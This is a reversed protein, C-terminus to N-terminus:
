DAIPCTPCSFSTHKLCIFKFCYKCYYRTKSEKRCLHCLKRIGEPLQDARVAQVAVGAAEQRRLRVEPPLNTVVARRHQHESTLANSLQRLYIRRSTKTDINNSTFIIQSNVGAVNMLGFFIVMPWRRTNRAVDYLACLENLTDVGGKTSNYFVIMEPKFQETTDDIADGHHM